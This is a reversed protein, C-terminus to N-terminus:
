RSHMRILLFTVQEDQLLHNLQEQQYQENFAENSDEPKSVYGTPEGSQYQAKISDEYSSAPRDHFSTESDSGQNASAQLIVSVCNVIVCPPRREPLRAQGEHSQATWPSTDCTSSTNSIAAQIHLM